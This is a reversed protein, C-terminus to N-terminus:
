SDNLTPILNARKVKDKVDTMFLYDGISTIFDKCANRHEFSTGHFSVGHLKELEIHDKFDSFPQCFTKKFGKIEAEQMHKLGKAIHTNEPLNFKIAAPHYVQGNKITEDHM